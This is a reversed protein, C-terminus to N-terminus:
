CKGAVSTTAMTTARPSDGATNRAIISITYESNEQLGTLTHQTSTGPVLMMDVGDFECNVEEFTYSIVYEAVM